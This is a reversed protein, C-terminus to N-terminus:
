RKKEELTLKAKYVKRGRKYTVDIAQGPEFKKLARRYEVCSRISHKDIRVILDDPKLGIKHAPSGRRVREIYAPPSRRGGQDFLRIGTYVPKAEVAPKDPIIRTSQGKPKIWRELYATLEVAPIAASIQTNTEKSEVMRTNLGIWEGTITFLGGGFHGPNNAADTIILKGDYDFDKLRYRLGTSATAVVVGFTASLKESYEALRFCNGISVVFTGNAPYNKAPKIPVLKKSLASTDIKLLRLGLKDDPPLLQAQHISGDALVVKTRDKQVMILDLTLIHGQESVIVGTAYPDITKLGSAGHVKVLSPLVRDILSETKTRPKREDFAYGKGQGVAPLVLLSTALITHLVKM